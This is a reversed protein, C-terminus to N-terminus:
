TWDLRWNIAAAIAAISPRPQCGGRVAGTSKSEPVRSSARLASARSPGAAGSRKARIMTVSGASAAPSGSRTARRTAAPIPMARILQAWSSAVAHRAIAPWTRAAARWAPRVQRTAISRAPGLSRVPGSTGPGFTTRSRGRRLRVPWTTSAPRPHSVAASWGAGAGSFSSVTTGTSAPHSARRCTPSSSTSRSVRPELRRRTSAAAAGPPNRRVM